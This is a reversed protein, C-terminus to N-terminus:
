VTLLASTPFPWPNLEESKIVNIAESLVVRSDENMELAEWHCFLSSQSSFNLALLLLYYNIILLLYYYSM